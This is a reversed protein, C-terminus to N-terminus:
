ARFLWKRKAVGESWRCIGVPRGVWGRRGVSVRLLEPDAFYRANDAVVSPVVDVGTYHVGQWDM